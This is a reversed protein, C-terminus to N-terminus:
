KNDERHILDLLRRRTSEWPEQSIGMGNDEGDLLRNIKYCLSRVTQFHGRWWAPHAYDTGDAEPNDPPENRM